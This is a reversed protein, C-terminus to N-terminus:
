RRVTPRGRALTTMTARCPASQLKAVIDVPVPVKCHVTVPGFVEDASWTDYGPAQVQVHYTGPTDGIELPYADSSSVVATDTRGRFTVVVQANNM